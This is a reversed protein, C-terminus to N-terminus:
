NPGTRETRKHHNNALRFVYSVNALHMYYNHLHREICLCSVLSTSHDIHKSM